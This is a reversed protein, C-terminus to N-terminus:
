PQLTARETGTSCDRANNRQAYEKRPEAQPNRRRYARKVRPPEVLISMPKDLTETRSVPCFQNIRSLIEPHIGEGLLQQFM